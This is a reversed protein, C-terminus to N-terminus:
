ARAKGSRSWRAVNDLNARVLNRQAILLEDYRFEGQRYGREVLDMAQKTQPLILRAYQEARSV